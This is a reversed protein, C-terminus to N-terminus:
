LPEARTIELEKSETDQSIFECRNKTFLCPKIEIENVQPFDLILLQINEPALKSILRLSSGCLLNVWLIADCQPM